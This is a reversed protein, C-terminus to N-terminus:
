RRTVCAPLNAYRRDFGKYYASSSRRGIRFPESTAISGTLSDFPAKTNQQEGNLYIRIGKAKSSGDYTVLLHQWRGTRISNADTVVQIANSNWKHILHVSLKGKRIMIDFGRLHNPRREALVPLHAVPHPTSGPLSRFRRKGISLFQHM